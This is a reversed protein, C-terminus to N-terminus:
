LPHLLLVLLLLCDNGLLLLLESLDSLLGFRLLLL